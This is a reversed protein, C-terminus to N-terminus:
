KNDKKDTLSKVIDNDSNNLPPMPPKRSELVYRIFALILCIPVSVLAAMTQLAIWSNDTVKYQDIFLHKPLDNLLFMVILLSIAFGIFGAIVKQGTAKLKFVPPIRITFHNEEDEKLGFVYGLLHGSIIVNIGATLTFSFVAGVLSLMNELNFTETVKAKSAM